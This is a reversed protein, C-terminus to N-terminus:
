SPTKLVPIEQLTLIQGPWLKDRCVKRASVHLHMQEITGASAVLQAAFRTSAEYWRYIGGRGEVVFDRLDKM